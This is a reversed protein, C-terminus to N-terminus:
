AISPSPLLVESLDKWSYGTTPDGRQANRAAVAASTAWGGVQQIKLLKGDITFLREKLQLQDTFPSAYSHLVLAM